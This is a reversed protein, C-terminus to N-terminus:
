SKIFIETSENLEKRNKYDEKKMVDRMFREKETLARSWSGIYGKQNSGDYEKFTLRRCKTFCLHGKKSYFILAHRHPPQLGEIKGKHIKNHCSVCVIITKVVPYYSVHHVVNGINGCVVCTM